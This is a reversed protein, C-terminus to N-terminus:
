RRSAAFAGAHALTTRSNAGLASRLFERARAITAGEGLVGAVAAPDIAVTHEATVVAGDATDEFTWAGSHGLLLAPPVLQKYVISEYPLCVRISRTTHASGDATVTDMEM